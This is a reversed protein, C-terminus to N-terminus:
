AQDVLVLPRGTEPHTLYTFTHGFARELMDGEALSASPGYYLQEGQRLVLTKGGADLPHNLDHTVTLITLGRERNLTKLLANVEAAHKPDLFSAPEDLLLIGAGQALAAALCAKQREGGSLANLRRHALATMGTLALTTEVAELDPGRLTKQGSLHAYRSLRLFETVTFPPIGGGAQPVYAVLRALERQSFSALPVGALSLGGTHRGGEHLRMFSKLLSSKGAGNPGIISLYDGRQLSFSIGQLVPTGSLSFSYNECTIADNM